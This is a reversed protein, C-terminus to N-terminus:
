EGREYWDLRISFLSVFFWVIVSIALTIVTVEVAGFGLLELDSLLKQTNPTDMVIALGLAVLVLLPGVM